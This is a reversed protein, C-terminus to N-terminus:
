RRKVMGERVLEPSTVVYEDPSLGTVMSEGERSVVVDVQKFYVREKRLCYVGKVGNKSTIASSPVLIGYYSKTILDVEILRQDLLDTRCSYLVLYALVEDGAKSMRTIKAGGLNRNAWKVEEVTGIELRGASRKPVSILLATPHLNNIIKLLPQGSQKTLKDDRITSPQYSFAEPKLDRLHSEDLVEELGDPRYSVIGSVPAIINISGGSGEPYFRGLLTGRRVREGERVLNEFRGKAPSPVVSEEHVVIAKARVRDVLLGERSQAVGMVLSTVRTTVERYTVWGGTLVLGMLVLAIVLRALVKKKKEKILRQRRDGM